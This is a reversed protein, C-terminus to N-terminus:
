IQYLLQNRKKLGELAVYDGKHFPLPYPAGIITAEFTEFVNNDQVRGTAKDIVLDSHDEIIQLTVTTDAPISKDPKGKYKCQSVFCYKNGTDKLFDEGKVITEAYRNTNKLM